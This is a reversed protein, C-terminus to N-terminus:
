FYVFWEDYSFACGCYIITGGNFNIIPFHKNELDVEALVNRYLSNNLQLFNKIGTNFTFKIYIM